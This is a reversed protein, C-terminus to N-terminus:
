PEAPSATSQPQRVARTVWDSANDNSDYGNGAAAESGSMTASTSTATAKREISASTYPASQGWPGVPAPQGEGGEATGYGVTDVVRHDTIPLSTTTGPLGLRVKGGAQALGLARPAGAGTLATFDAAPTGAYGGTGGSGVLYFGRAPISAGAPLLAVTSYSSTAGAAAYQLVWGALSMAQTSPNYLEIFEDSAGGAGAASVESLLVDCVDGRGDGDFDLQNQSAITPCNDCADGWADNDQNAQNANSVAPCNDCADGRGDGDGDLQSANSAQPCNDCVDGVGDGDGDAQSSNSVLPCNDCADGLGDGDRDLQNPNAVFPCNDVANLVGDNDADTDCADGQGDADTDRQDANRVTPCNDCADGVGDGDTDTQAANPTMPCTDCADGVGDGDADAQSPNAVGPCNDCPNAVGDQDPDVTSAVCEAGDGAANCARVGCGPGSLSCREGVGPVDPLGCANCNNRGPGTCVASLGDVSCALTGACGGATCGQGLGVVDPAGCVGCNNKRPAVCEVGVGSATCRQQGACGDTGVCAAGLGTVDPLGCAGCNNVRGGSCLLLELGACAWQGCPECADGPAQELMTCGGCANTVDEDVQGDCDNDAGDCLEVSPTVSGECEGLTGNARCLATGARCAGVNLTGSPGRYCTYSKGPECEPASGCGGLVALILLAPLRSSM